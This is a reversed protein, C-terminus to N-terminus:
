LATNNDAGSVIRQSYLQALEGFRSWGIHQDIKCTDRLNIAGADAGQHAGEDSEFALTAAQFDQVGGAMDFLDELERAQDMGNGGEGVLCFGNGGEAAANGVGLPRGHM